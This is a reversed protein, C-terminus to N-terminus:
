AKIMGMVDKITEALSNVEGFLKGEFKNLRDLYFYQEYIRRMWDIKFTKQWNKEYDPEILIDIYGKTYKKGKVKVVVTDKTWITIKMNFKIYSNVRKKAIFIFKTEHLPTIKRGSTVKEIIYYGWGRLRGIIGSYVKDFDFVGTRRVRVRPVGVKEQKIDTHVM